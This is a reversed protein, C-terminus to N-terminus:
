VSVAYSTMGSKEMAEEWQNRNIEKFSIKRRCIQSFLDALEYQNYCEDTALEYTSGFHRANTIVSAAVEAINRLDIMGIRTEGNYPM